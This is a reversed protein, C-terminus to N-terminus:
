VGPTFKPAGSPYVTGAGSTVSTTKIYNCVRHYTNEYNCSWIIELSPVHIDPLVTTYAQKMYKQSVHRLPYKM